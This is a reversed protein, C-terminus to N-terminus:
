GSNVGELKLWKVVSIGNEASLHIFNLHWPTCLAVSDAHRDITSDSPITLSSFLQWISSM